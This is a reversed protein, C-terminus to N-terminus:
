HENGLCRAPPAVTLHDIVQTVSDVGSALQIATLRTEESAAQGTLTVAGDQVSVTAWGPDVLLLGHLVGRVEDAIEMDPRLFIRLLNRRSVVGLLDGDPTVVPLLRIGPQDM